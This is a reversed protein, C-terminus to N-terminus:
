FCLNCSALLMFKNCFNILITLFYQYFLFKYIYVLKLFVWAGTACHNAFPMSAQPAHTRIVNGGRQPLMNKSNERGRVWPCHTSEPKSFWSQLPRFGMEPSLVETRQPSSAVQWLGSLSMDARRSAEAFVQDTVPSSWTWWGEPHHNHVLFHNKKTNNEIAGQFNVKGPVIERRVM